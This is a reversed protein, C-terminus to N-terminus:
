SNKKRYNSKGETADQETGANGIGPGVFGGRQEAASDQNRQAQNPMQNASFFQRSNSHCRDHWGVDM